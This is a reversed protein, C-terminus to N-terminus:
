LKADEQVDQSSVRLVENALIDVYEQADRVERLVERLMTETNGSGIEHKEIYRVARLLRWVIDDKAKETRVAFKIRKFDKEYWFGFKGPGDIGPVAVSRHIKSTLLLQDIAKM